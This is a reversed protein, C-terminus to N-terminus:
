KSICFLNSLQLLRHNINGWSRFIVTLMTINIKDSIIKRLRALVYWTKQILQNSDIEVRVISTNWCM